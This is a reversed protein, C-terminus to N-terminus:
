TYQPNLDVRAYLLRWTWSRADANEEKWMGRECMVDYVYEWGM